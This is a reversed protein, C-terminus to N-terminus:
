LTTRLAIEIGQSVSNQRSAISSGLGKQLALPTATASGQNFSAFGGWIFEVDRMIPVRRNWGLMLFQGQAGYIPEDGPLYASERFIGMSVHIMWVPTILLNLLPGVALRYFSQPQTQSQAGSAYTRLGIEWNQSPHQATADFILASGGAKKFGTSSQSEVAYAGHTQSLINWQPSDTHLNDSGRLQATVSLTYFLVVLRFLKRM